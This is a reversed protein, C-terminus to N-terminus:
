KKPLNKDISDYLTITKNVIHSELFNNRVFDECKKLKIELKKDRYDSIIKNICDIYSPISDKESIYILSDDFLDCSAKKSSIVPINLIMAELIGRPLGEGYISPVILIPFEYTQTLLPNKIVGNFIINRHEKKFILLEKETISDASSLDISGFVASEQSKLKEAVKIFTIIGKSRILRGSYILNCKIKSEYNSPRDIWHIRDKKDLYELPVGSGYILIKNCDPIDRFIRELFLMDLKNQFIFKTRDFNKIIFKGGIQKFSLSRIIKFILIILFRKLGRSSSLQGLGAFSLICPIGFCFSAIATLFNTKLTHSHVLKPKLTRFIFILRILSLALNFINKNGSRSIRWPVHLTLKSLELTSNDIPSISVVNVKKSKLKTLLLKRYHLLYWSSNAIILVPRNYPNNLM